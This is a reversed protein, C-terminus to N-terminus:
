FGPFRWIATVILKLGDTWDQAKFLALVFQDLLAASHTVVASWPVLKILFYSRM